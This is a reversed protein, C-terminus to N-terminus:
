AKMGALHADSARQELKSQERVHCVAYVVTAVFHSNMEKPDIVRRDSSRNRQPETWDFAATRQRCRTVRMRHRTSVMRRCRAPPHNVQRSSLSEGPHLRVFLRFQPCNASIQGPTRRVRGAAKGKM